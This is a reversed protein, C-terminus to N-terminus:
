DEKWYVYEGNDLERRKVISLDHFMDNLVDEVFGEKAGLLDAVAYPSRGGNPDDEPPLQNLVINSAPLGTQQDPSTVERKVIDVDDSLDDVATELRNLSQEIEDTDVDVSVDGQNTGNIHRIVATRILDTLTQFEGTEEIYEKWEDKLESDVRLNIQSRETM